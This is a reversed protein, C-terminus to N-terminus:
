PWTRSDRCPALGLWDYYESPADHRQMYARLGAYLHAEVELNRVPQKQDPDSDMDYLRFGLDQFPRSTREAGSLARIQMVPVDRTFDFPPSMKATKLEEISFPANLHQPMLRYEYIGEAKLDPPYHMM